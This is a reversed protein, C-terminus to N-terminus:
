DMGNQGYTFSFLLHLHQDDLFALHVHISLGLFFLFDLLIFPYSYLELKGFFLSILGQIRPFVIVVM